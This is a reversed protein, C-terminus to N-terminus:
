NIIRNGEIIRQGNILFTQNARLRVPIPTEGPHPIVSFDVFNATVRLDTLYPPISDQSVQRSGFWITWKRQDTYILASLHLRDIQWIPKNESYQLQGIARSDPLQAGDTPRLALASLIARKENGSFLLSGTAEANKEQAVCVPSILGIIMLMLVASITRPFNLM